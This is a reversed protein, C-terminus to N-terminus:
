GRAQCGTWIKEVVRDSRTNTHTLQHVVVNPNGTPQSDVRYTRLRRERDGKVSNAKTTSSVVPNSSAAAVNSAPALSITLGLATFVAIVYAASKRARKTAYM